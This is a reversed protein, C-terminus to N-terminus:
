RVLRMEDVMTARSASSESNRGLQAEPDGSIRGVNAGVTGLAVGRLVREGLGDGVTIGVQVGVGVAPGVAVKVGCGVAVVAGVGVATGLAVAVGKVSPFGWRIPTEGGNDSM